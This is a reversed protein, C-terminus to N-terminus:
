AQELQDDIRRDVHDPSSSTQRVHRNRSTSSRSSSGPSASSGSAAATAVATRPREFGLTRRPASRRRLSRGAVTSASRGKGAAGPPAARGYVEAKGQSSRIFLSDKIQKSDTNATSASPQEFPSPPFTLVPVPPPAPPVPPAPLLVPVPPLAPLEPVPLPPLPAPPVPPEAPVVPLPPAAPEPDAPVLPPPAPPARPPAPPPM